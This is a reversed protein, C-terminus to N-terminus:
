SSTVSVNGAGLPFQGAIGHGANQGHYRLVNGGHGGTGGNASGGPGGLEAFSLTDSM